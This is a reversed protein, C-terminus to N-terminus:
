RNWGAFLRPFPLKAPRQGLETREYHDGVWTFRVIEGGAYGLSLAGEEDTSLSIGRGLDCSAVPWDFVKLATKDRLSWLMLRIQRSSDCKGAAWPDSGSLVPVLHQGDPALLPEPVHFDDLQAPPDAVAQTLKAEDLVQPGRLWIANGQANSGLWYRGKRQLAVVPAATKPAGSRLTVPLRMPSCHLSQGASNELVLCLEAVLPGRSPFPPLGDPTVSLSLSEPTEAWFFGSNAPADKPFSAGESAVGAGAFHLTARTLGVPAPTFSVALINGKMAARAKVNPLAPQFTLLGPLSVPKPAATATLGTVAIALLLHRM